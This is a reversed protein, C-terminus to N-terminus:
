QGERRVYIALQGFQDTQTYHSEIYDAIPQAYTRFQQQEGLLIVAPPDREAEAIFREYDGPSQDGPWLYNWRTPNRRDCLFYFMPQYPLALMSRAPPVFDQISKIVGAVVAAQEIRVGGREITLQEKARGVDPLAIPRLVCLFCSFLIVGAIFFATAYIRNHLLKERLILFGFASLLFFPPLTMLLHTQDSRVAVQLYFLGSWVTLFCLLAERLGFGRRIIAQLLYLAASGEILPPLYYLAVVATESINRGIVPKPFPLASTKGYITLPFVFLQKFMEPLAGVCTWFVLLPIVVVVFGASGFLAARQISRKDPSTKAVFQLVIILALLATVTYIAQDQRLFISLGCLIGAPVGLWRRGYLAAALFLVVAAFSAAIGQWAALPVFYVYPLGLVCLPAAGAMSLIPGFGVIRGACYLLLPLVLFLSLGFARLTLLSTGCIKFLAAATYFSLPPQVSVFDRNPIEGHAVRDAGHALLGEDRWDIGARWRPYAIAVAFFILLAVCIVDALFPKNIKSIRM